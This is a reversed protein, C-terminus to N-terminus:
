RRWSALNSEGGIWVEECVYRLSNQGDQGHTKGYQGNNAGPIKSECIPEPEPTRKGDACQRTDGAHYQIM